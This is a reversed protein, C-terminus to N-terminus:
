RMSKKCDLNNWLSNYHTNLIRLSAKLLERGVWISYVQTTEDNIVFKKVIEDGVKINWEHGKYTNVNLVPDGHGLNGWFTDQFYLKANVMRDDTKSNSFSAKKQGDDKPKNNARNREVVERNVPAGPFGGRPKIIIFLWCLFM